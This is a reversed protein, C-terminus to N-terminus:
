WTGDPKRQMHLDYGWEKSDVPAVGENLMARYARIISRIADDSVLPIRVIMARM